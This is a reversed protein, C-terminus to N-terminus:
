CNEKLAVILAAYNPEDSIERVHETYCIAGEENIIVVARSLLGTLPGNTIAVGYLIGLDPHRFVSAPLVNNLHEAACFRKQAFPLDASVCLIFINLEQAAIENFRVMASACTQTDLSPFINLIIKKGLFNKLRMEGMDTKTVAFDPAKTGVAPLEGITEFPEGKLKITAM